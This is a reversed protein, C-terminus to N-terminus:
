GQYKDIHIDFNNNTVTSFSVLHRRFHCSFKIFISFITRNCSNINKTFFVVWQCFSFFIDFSISFYIDLLLVKFLYFSISGTFCQSAIIYNKSEAVIIICEYFYQTTYINFFMINHMVFYFLIHYVMWTMISNFSKQIMTYYNGKRTFCIRLLVEGNQILYDRLM